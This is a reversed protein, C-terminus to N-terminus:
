TVKLLNKLMYDAMRENMGFINVLMQTIGPETRPEPSVAPLSTEAWMLKINLPKIVEKYSQPSSLQSLTPLVSLTTGRSYIQFPFIDPFICVGEQIKYQKWVDKAQRYHLPTAQWFVSKQFLQDSSQEEKAEEWLHGFSPFM